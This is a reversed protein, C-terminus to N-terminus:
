DPPGIKADAITYLFEEPDKTNLRLRGEVRVLERTLRILKGEPAEVLVIGTPEPIECFWCGVPYEILLVAQQELGEGTPQLFGLMSVRTNDLKKLHPHTTVRFPKELTTESLVFWPLTNIGDPRIPPLAFRSIDRVLPRPSKFRVVSAADHGSHAASDRTPPAAAKKDADARYAQRRQRLLPDGMGFETVCGDLIAAATAADGTARALEGLQGLLRGDAPLWLGLTQAASVADGPLGAPLTAEGSYTVGFLDDLGATGRREAKRQRVLKLQLEEARKWRPPALRAALELAAVAQDADGSLQCATGLNSACRFHDPATRLGARLVAVAKDFEGLRDLLAGLDAAEDASLPRTLALLKNRDTRYSERLPLPPAGPVAPLALARLSRQDILYGRWQSPLEAWNEGSYHLGAPAAPALALVVFLSALSRLM